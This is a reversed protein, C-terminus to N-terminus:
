NWDEPFFLYSARVMVSSVIANGNIDPPEAFAVIGAICFPCSAATSLKLDTYSYEVGIVARDWFMAEIGGGLTWGDVFNENTVSQGNLTVDIVANSGAWGGKAFVLYRDFAYGIRGEVTMLWDLSTSASNNEEDLATQALGLGSFSYELGFVWSGNQLNAGLVLGGAVSSPTFKASVGDFDDTIFIQDRTWNIDSWAGGLKGGIYFGTWDPQGQMDTPSIFGPEWSQAKAGDAALWTVCAAAFLMAVHRIAQM